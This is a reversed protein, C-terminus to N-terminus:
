QDASNSGRHEIVVKAYPNVRLIVPKKPRGAVSVEEMYAYITQPAKDNEKQNGEIASPYVVIAYFGSKSFQFWGALKTAAIPTLHVNIEAMSKFYNTKRANILKDAISETMGPLLLLTEKSAINPNVSGSVNGWLTFVTNLEIDPFMDTFGKILRIEDVSTFVGNRPTYGSKERKYYAAEAGNLRKLNDKDIWDFWADVREAIKKNGEGLQQELLQTLKKQSLRTINLKGSLDYIRVTMDEPTNYSLKLPRGDFRNEESERNYLSTKQAKIKPMNDIVLEMYAKNLTELTASWDQLAEQHHIVTTASLRINAAIATVLILGLMIMWMVLILISGKNKKSFSM